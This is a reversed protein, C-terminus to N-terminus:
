VPPTWALLTKAEQLFRKRRGIERADEISDAEVEIWDRGWPQYTGGQSKFFELEKVYVAAETVLIMFKM